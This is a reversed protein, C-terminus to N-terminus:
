LKRASKPGTQHSSELFPMPKLYRWMINQVNKNYYNYIYIYTNNVLQYTEKAPSHYQIFHRRASSSASILGVYESVYTTYVSNNRVPIWDCFAHLTSVMSVKTHFNTDIIFGQRWLHYILCVGLIWTTPGIALLSTELKSNGHNLPLRFVM